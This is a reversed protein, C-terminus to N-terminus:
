QLGGTTTGVATRGHCTSLWFLRKHVHSRHFAYTANPTGPITSMPPLMTHWRLWTCLRDLINLDFGCAVVASFAATLRVADGWIFTHYDLPNSITVLDSLTAQVSESQRKAFPRPNLNTRALADAMLAAEGGSFSLSVIDRGDIPGAIHLFKLTELFVALSPARAVGIRKLFAAAVMDAGALSATHSM